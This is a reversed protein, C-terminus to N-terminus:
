GIESIEKKLKGIEKELVAQSFMLKELEMKNKDTEMKLIDMKKKAQRIDLDLQMKKQENKKHEGGKILMEMQLRHKKALSETDNNQM